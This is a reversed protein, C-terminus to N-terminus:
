LMSMAIRHLVDLRSGQLTSKPRSVGLNQYSNATSKETSKKRRNKEEQKKGLSVAGYLGGFLEGVLNVWSDTCFGERSLVLILISVIHTESHLDKSIGKSLLVRLIAPFAM